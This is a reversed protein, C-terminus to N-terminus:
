WGSIPVEALFSFVVGAGSLDDGNRKTLGGFSASQIGFTIYGVNSEILTYYNSVNATGRVMPGALQISAVKTADSTIGGNTGNFGLTLRAETTTTTGTTFKGRIYLTDGIRRSWISVSAATGFGTFTPTYTVWPTGFLLVNSGSENTILAALNASSPTAAFTDFGAARVVAAWSTLNPDLPQLGLGLVPAHGGSGPTKVVVRAQAPDDFSEIASLNAFPDTM